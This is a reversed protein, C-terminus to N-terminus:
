GGQTDDRVPDQAGVRHAPRLSVGQADFGAIHTPGGRRAGQVERRLLRRRAPVGGPGRHHRLRRLLVPRRAPLVEPRVVAPVQRDAQGPRRVPRPLLAAGRPVRRRPPMQRRVPHNGERLYHHHSTHPHRRHKHRVPAHIPRRRKRQFRAGSGFPPTTPPHHRSVITLRHTSRSRRPRVSFSSPPFARSPRGSLFPRPKVGPITDPRDPRGSARARAERGVPLARDGGRHRREPGAALQARRVGASRAPRRSRGTRTARRSPYRSPRPHHAPDPSVEISVAHTATDRPALPPPPWGISEEVGRSKAARGTSTAREAVVAPAPLSLTVCPCLEMQCKPMRCKAELKEEDMKKGALFDSELATMPGGPRRGRLDPRGPRGGGNPPGGRAADRARRYGAGGRLLAGRADDGRQLIGRAVGDWERLRDSGASGRSRRHERQEHVAPRAHVVHADRLVRRPRERRGRAGRDRRVRHPVDRHRPRVQGLRRPFGRELRRPPRPEAPHPVRRLTVRHRGRRRRRRRGM